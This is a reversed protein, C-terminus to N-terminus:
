TGRACRRSEEAFARLVRDAQETMAVMRCIREATEPTEAVYVKGLWSDHWVVQDDTLEEGPMKLELLVNVGDVGVALDPCGKKVVALSQVTFGCKRLHNVIANQNGDVKCIQPKRRAM